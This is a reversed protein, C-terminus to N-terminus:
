DLIENNIRSERFQRYADRMAVYPDLASRKMDEYVRGEEGAVNVRKLSYAAAGALLDERGLYTLPDLFSDGALGVTDRLNSPGIIPWCIYPGGGIGYRGLTQGLDESRPKLGLSSSAVDFFGAIGVTSNVLFRGLVVGAGKIEGQLLNNVLRVPAALNFFLNRVGKRVPAPVVYDYGKSVPRVVWFYLRDNFVFAVRNLPEFPDNAEPAQIEAAFPDDDVYDLDLGDLDLRGAEVGGGAAAARVSGPWVAAALLLLFLAVLRRTGGGDM